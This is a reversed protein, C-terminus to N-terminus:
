ISTQAQALCRAEPETSRPRRRLRGTFLYYDASHQRYDRRIAFSTIFDM